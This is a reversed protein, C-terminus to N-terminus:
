TGNDCQFEERLLITSQSYEQNPEPYVTDVSKLHPCHVTNHLETQTTENSAQGQVGKISNYIETILMYKGQLEINLNNFQGTM